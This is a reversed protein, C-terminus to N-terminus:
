RTVNFLNILVWNLDPNQRYEELAPLTTKPQVLDLGRAVIYAAEECTEATAIINPFTFEGNYVVAEPDEGYAFDASYAFAELWELGSREEFGLERWQTRVEAAGPGTNCLELVQTRVVALDEPLPHGVSSVREVELLEPGSTCGSVFLAVSLM